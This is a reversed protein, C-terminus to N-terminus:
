SSSHPFGLSAAGIWGADNGLKARVIELGQECEPLVNRKLSARLQSVYGNVGEVIGGGIVFMDPNLLNAVGALFKGLKQASEAIVKAALSNGNEASWILERVTMDDFSVERGGKTSIAKQGSESLIRRARKLIASASVVTELCGRAGCQCKEGEPDVILHGIEGASYNAGRLLVGNQMIAGGIGTGVTIFVVFKRGKAAGFLHEALAVGNADNDIKVDIKLRESLKRGLEIGKWGPINPSSGIIQGSSIDVAGPTVVGLCPIHVTDASSAALAERGIETLTDILADAGKHANTPRRNKRLVNGSEDMAGFKIASGGIDIGIYNKQTSNM